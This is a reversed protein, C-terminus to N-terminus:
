IDLVVDSRPYACCSYIWGAQRDQPDIEADETMAVKGWLCRVMCEGCSGTRCDSDIRINHATALDLLKINEDCRVSLGSKVFQVRYKGQNNKIAAVSKRNGEPLTKTVFSETHINMEAAGQRILIEAASQMFAEPGCLFMQRESLDAVTESLLNADIRGTHGPWDQANRPNGTFTLLVDINEYRAAKFALEERYIIDAPTKCSLILQVNVRAHSDVIWRLMSMIPVIGSGAALFLLKRAPFNFCSFRGSPGKVKLTDGVKLHDCLWNSVLGGPLRKVTIEIGHPRSPSSAISYSRQVAQGNIVVLLTIFQGPAYTFLFAQRGTLCITKVTETEDIVGTVTMETFIAPWKQLQEKDNILHSYLPNDPPHPQNCHEAAPHKQMSPKADSVLSQHSHGLSSFLHSLRDQRNFIGGNVLRHTYYTKVDAPITKFPLHTFVDNVWSVKNKNNQNRKFGFGM